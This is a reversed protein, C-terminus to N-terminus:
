GILRVFNPIMNWAHWRSRVPWSYSECDGMDHVELPENKAGEPEATISCSLTLAGTDSKEIDLFYKMLLYDEDTDGNLKRTDKVQVCVPFFPRRSRWMFWKAWNPLESIQYFERYAKEYPCETEKM